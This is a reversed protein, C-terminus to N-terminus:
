DKRTMQDVQQLDAPTLLWDAAKFNEEVQEPRTAGAIVSTVIPKAALWSFALETLTRNQEACFKELSEVIRWNAGTLVRDALPKSNTLRAGEPMVNRKYKGTLLGCALPFYPLLRLGYSQMAPLLEREIDRALLSYEDQCCIFANLGLLRSTWQAEVVQWAPLNSCGIYRIKGARILDDLARLTEEIPTHPDPCHLQYLDIYDTNLRRLSSEVSSLIYQRSAGKLTGADDMPMSFKTALVIDKRRQGLAQGLITESAGSGGYVDATDFLTIGLDLAKHIVKRSTEADTRRGFNNCGLGVLSVQLGSNGLTRHQM